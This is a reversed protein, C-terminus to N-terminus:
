FQVRVVQVRVTRGQACAVLETSFVKVGLLVSNIGNATINWAIIDDCKLHQECIGQKCNKCAHVHHELTLNM